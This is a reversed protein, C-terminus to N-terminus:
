GVCVSAVMARTARLAQRDGPAVFRWFGVMASAPNGPLGFYLQRGKSFQAGLSQAGLVSCGLVSCGLASRLRLGAVTLPKGPKMAVSRVHLTAGLEALVDDVYDYDGVSVGGSSIVMDAQALASAIAEKVRAREDSVIGLLIPVAGTQAVLPRSHM